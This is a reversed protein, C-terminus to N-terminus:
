PVYTPYTLQDVTYAEDDAPARHYAYIVTRADECGGREDPWTVVVRVLAPHGFQAIAAHALAEPHGQCMRERAAFLAAVADRDHIEELEVRENEEITGVQLYTQAQSLETCYLLRQARCQTAKAGNVCGTALLAVGICFARM